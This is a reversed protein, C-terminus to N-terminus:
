GRTLNELVRAAVKRGERVAHNTGRDEPYIQAMSALHLGPLPQDPPILASYHREVVPQAWRARWVHFEQVWDRRFAPFMRQLHPVSFAMVEEDSMAYLADTEPLYKSLYVIHRGGYSSADEFNTHEIVGVYPFGPDNVNTWYTSGLPRDLELVLCLNALYPIRRLAATDTQGGCELMDAVLAPAPTAIVTTGTAEGWPGRAIWGGDVQRLESVPFDTRIEGGASRIAAATEEALRAFSGKFYALREEGGKGRSGGRLKLKNWFWVASVTEAYPGFKGQLLPEWMVRWVREGGLRRLWDAATVGELARWDKVARARPIMLGLRIRDLFPLAGFRLLDLPSSLRFLSNNYWVGTATARLTIDAALGLEEVLRMIERDSTFWHHYFRDLREGKTDFAGALGGVHADAELVSVPVGQRALDFAAALGTFGAGIILVRGTM